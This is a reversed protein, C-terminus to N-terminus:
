LNSNVLGIFKSATLGGSEPVVAEPDMKSLIKQLHRFHKESMVKGNQKRVLNGLLYHGMPFDKELYIAKNLSTIAEGTKGLESLITAYFYHIRYDTRETKLLEECLLASEDYEGLNAKTKALLLKAERDQQVTDQVPTLHQTAIRSEPENFSGKEFLQQLEELTFPAPKEPLVSETRAKKNGKQYITYGSYVVKSFKDSIYPTMDAPSVVLIGGKVLCQYFRDTVTGIVDESFYIMVNRCFIIDMDLTNTAASPYVPEALNLWSFKVMERVADSVLFRNEGAPTFYSDVPYKNHRFSWKSYIGQKAKEMLVPSIDTALLSINWSKPNPILQRLLIAISYIEEGSAVGASWIRLYKGNSSRERILAPLYIKELYEFSKPERFFFTEGISFHISLKEIITRTVPTSILWSICESSNEIEFEKSIAALKRLVEKEHRSSYHLGLNSNLYKQFEALLQDSPRNNM